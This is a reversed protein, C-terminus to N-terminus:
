SAAAKKQEKAIKEARLRLYAQIVYDPTQEGELEPAAKLMARIERRWREATRQPVDLEKWVGSGLSRQFYSATIDRMARAAPVGNEVAIRVGTFLMLSAIEGMQDESARSIFDTLEEDTLPTTDTM